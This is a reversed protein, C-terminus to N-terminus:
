KETWKCFSGTVMTAGFVCVSYLTVLKPDVNIHVIDLVTIASLIAVSVLCIFVSIFGWLRRFWRSIQTNALLYGTAEGMLALSIAILEGHVLIKQLNEQWNNIPKVLPTFLLNLIIPIAAVGISFAWWYGIRSVFDVSWQHIASIAKNWTIGKNRGILISIVLCIWYCVIPIAALPFSLIGIAVLIGIYLIPLFLVFVLSLLIVYWKDFSPMNGMM